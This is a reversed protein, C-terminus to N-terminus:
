KILLTELKEGPYKELFLPYSMTKLLGKRKYILVIDVKGNIYRKREPMAPNLVANNIERYRKQRNSACTERYRKQRNSNCTKCVAQLGSRVRRCKYFYDLTAPKEEKCTTCRRKNEM